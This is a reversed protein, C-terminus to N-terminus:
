SYMGNASMYDYVMKGHQQEEKQLHNLTNRVNQDRFEFICTNYDASVHKETSLADNCLYSDNRYAQDQGQYCSAQQSGSNQSSQGSQSSQSNSSPISGSMMQEITQVHQQEQQAISQFLNQLQPASAQQAYKSYKETCIQEANKLDQLLSMEKQTFM